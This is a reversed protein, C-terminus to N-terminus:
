NAETENELKPKRITKHCKEYITIPGQLVDLRGDHLQAADEGLQGVHDLLLLLHDLPYVGVHLVRSEINVHTM